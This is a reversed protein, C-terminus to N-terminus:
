KNLIGIINSYDDTWVPQDNTELLLWRWDRAISGLGGPKKALIVWDSPNKTPHKFDRWSTRAAAATISGPSPVALLGMLTADATPESLPDSSGDYEERGQINLKKAINGLVPGLKLYRNSIHIAVVGDDALKDLYLEIAEQTILHIPIADSSFADVVILKYKGSPAKQMKLRADGIEFQIIGGRERADRLYTFYKPNEAIRIVAPDIDYFTATQGPNVYSAMTGTGLGIFAVDRTADPGSVLIQYAQGIPGTRHYYTLPENLFRKWDRREWETCANAVAAELPSSASLPVLQYPAVQNYFPDMHQMGHLTTGHLLRRLGTEPREEVRLVGFFSREQHVIKDSADGCAGALLVAAVGLGFRLPQEAFGYCLVVPLGYTLLRVFNDATPTLGVRSTLKIAGGILWSLAPTAFPSHRILELSLIFLALPLGLELLRETRKQIFEWLAQRPGAKAPAVTWSKRPGIIYGVALLLGGVVMVAFMVQNALPANALSEPLSGFVKLFQRDGKADVPAYWALRFTAYVGAFCLGVALLFDTIQNGRSKKGSGLLPMFVCSLAIALPYEVISNFVVPAVLANFLGGLVGGLSMCLYYATLYHTTPRSRALEGHCMMCVIFLTTLHLAFKIWINAFDSIIIFVLLLIVVPMVLVIVQHVISPRPGPGRKKGIMLYALAYLGDDIASSFVLIFSLLYLGLPIVWLLPYSAIDTTIYTTVGLMLSSPVFALGAWWAMRALTPPGGPPPPLLPEAPPAPPQDMVAAPKTTIAEREARARARRERRTIKQGTAQATVAERVPESLAVGESMGVPALQPEPVPAPPAHLVLWACYAALAALLVYGFMWVVGQITLGLTPEIILPYGLLGVMSGVNSAAYLFYPDRATPHGTSSFWRQLLPASTSIVFFPVGVLVMLLLLLWLASYEDGPPDFGKSLGLPFILFVLLPAALLGIQIKIGQRLSTRTSLFHVYTYGLLLATQFFATCTVWVAPTGGFKPLIMKAIMLEVIFLLAASLFLTVTYVVLPNRV